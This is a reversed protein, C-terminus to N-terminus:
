GRAAVLDVLQEHGVDLPAEVLGAIEAFTNEFRTLRLKEQSAKRIRRAAQDAVITPDPDICNPPECGHLAELILKIAAKYKAMELESDHLASAIARRDNRPM